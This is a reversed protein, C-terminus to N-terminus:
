PMKTRGRGGTATYLLPQSGVYGAGGFLVTLPVTVKANKTKAIFGLPLLTAAFSGKKLQLTFRFVNFRRDLMVTVSNNGSKARLRDDLTLGVAVGGIDVAVRQGKYPGNSTIPTAMKMMITDRGTGGGLAIAVSQIILGQPNTPDGLPHSTPDNPNSGWAIELSDSFGDNDSDPGSGFIGAFITVILPSSTLSQGSANAITVTVSQAGATVYHHVITSGTGTAGDGFNWTYTLATADSAAATFTVAAYKGDTQTAIVAPNPTATVSSITPNTVFVLESATGSTVFGNSVSFNFEDTGVAGTQPTYTFTGATKDNIVVTGFAPKGVIAFTLPLSPINLPDSGALTGSVATNIPTTVSGNLAVPAAAVEIVFTQPASTDMGGNTTGGNDHLAVTVVAAGHVNPAPAFTLNGSASLSPAVSFLSPASNSLIIFNLLQGSENPPGASIQTAFKPISVAGANEGGVALPNPIQFSPAQNILSITITFTQTASTDKGGFLIGGNDKAFVSITATGSANPAPAFFLNANSSLGFYVITPQISFLAPNNSSAFFTVTQSAEYANVGPSINTIFGPAIFIGSNELVTVSPSTITFSPPSNPPITSISFTQVPSTDTGGGDDQLDVSITATGQANLALTFTLNGNSSLSPQGTATFLSSNTDGMNNNFHVIQSSENPPGPSIQTAFGAITTTLSNEFVTVTPPNPLVFSPPQNVPTVNITFVQIPSSDQGGFATGGNDMLFVGITSSGNANTAPTFSLTGAAPTFSPPVSPTIAPESAFLGPNSNSTIIFTLTQNSEDLFIGPSIGAAFGNFAFAGSNENVTITNTSLNYSPATNIPFVTITAFLFTNSYATSGGNSSVDVPSAGTTNGDTGDWARFTLTATGAFGSNPVFQVLTKSDAALLTAHTDSVLPDIPLWTTGGDTSFKWTGNSSDMGTVAVGKPDQFDVDSIFPVAFTSVLTGPNFPGAGSNAPISTITPSGPTLTPAHNFHDITLKFPLSASLGGQDTVTITITVPAGVPTYSYLVPTITVSPSSGNYTFVIGGTNLSNSNQVITQDSSFGNLTLKNPPSEADSITFTQTSTLNEFIAQDTLGSITPPTNPVVHVIFKTTVTDGSADTAILTITATGTTSTPTVFVTGTFTTGSVSLPSVTIGSGPVVSQNDSSATVTVVEGDLEDVTFQQPPTAVLPTTTQDNLPVTLDFAPPTNVFIAISNSGSLSTFQDFASIAIKDNKFYGFNPTYTLTGLAITAATENATFSISNGNTTIAGTVSLTGHTATLTIQILNSNVPGAEAVSVGNINNPTSNEEVTVNTPGFITPPGNAARASPSLVAAGALAALCLLKGTPTM